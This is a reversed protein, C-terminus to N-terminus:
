YEQEEESEEAVVEDEIEENVLVGMEYTEERVGEAEDWEVGCDEMILLVAAEPVMVQQVFAAVGSAQVVADRCGKIDHKLLDLINETILRRGHPGYYGPYAARDDLAYAELEAQHSPSLDTRKSPISAAKGTLAVPEYRSRHPSPRENLLIQRLTSEHSKLRRPLLTWNIAPYGASTYAQQASLKKHLHCFASKHKVTKPKSTWFTWYDSSSVPHSCLPCRTGEEEIEPLHEIYNSVEDLHNQAASSDPQSSPPDNNEKWSNLQKLLQASKAAKKSKESMPQESISDLVESLNEDDYPDAGTDKDKTKKSKTARSNVRRLDDDDSFNPEGLEEALEQLEDDDLMSVSSVSDSDQSPQKNKLQSAPGYTRVAPKSLGKGFKKPASSHINKTKSDYGKANKNNKQSVHEMGWRIPGDSTSAQSSALANEKDETQRDGAKLEQSNKFAGRTPARISANKKAPKRQPRKLETDVNRLTPMTPKSSEASRPPPARLEDDSSLPDANIDIEEQQKAPITKDARRKGAPEEHDDDTAHRKGNVSRLLPRVNRRTLGAM